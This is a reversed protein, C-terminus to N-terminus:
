GGVAKASSLQPLPPASECMPINEPVAVVMKSAAYTAIHGRKGRGAYRPKITVSEPSLVECHSRHDRPIMAYGEPCSAPAAVPTPPPPPQQKHPTASADTAEELAPVAISDGVGAQLLRRMASEIDGTGDPSAEEVGDPPQAPAACDGGAPHQASQLSPLLVLALLLRPRM